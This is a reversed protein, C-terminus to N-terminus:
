ILEQKALHLAAGIIQHMDYYKYEALRGGFIINKEQDARERYKKYLANNKGDNIPYYPIKTRDWTDPFELTIVTKDQQGFEFHKHEIIRTYPVNEDTYNMQAVGQYDKIDLVKREFKTTRYELEGYCYDYYADIPGTYIIKSGFKNWKDKNKLYDTNIFCPINYLMKDIIKTYGGEPIGQYKDFYYNDDFNTRIPIRKIISSPLEKPDKMWQKKTYGKIFIEYLDKGIESLCWEELNAPNVIPIKNKELIEKALIPDKVGFVQYLTLLNIPFSYIKDKYNIRPRNVFHNFTAFQNIYDWIQKNSTHFIHPGYEHVNIGCVNQTYINGGVHDRKELVLCKKGKKYAEYAFVAGFLGSGVIIYDYM